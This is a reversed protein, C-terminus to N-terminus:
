FKETRLQICTENSANPLYLQSPCRLTWSSHRAGAIVNKIVRCLQCPLVLLVSQPLLCVGLDYRMAFSLQCSIVGVEREREGM